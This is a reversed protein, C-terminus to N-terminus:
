SPETWQLLCAAEANFDIGNGNLDIYNNSLGSRIESSTPKLPQYSM